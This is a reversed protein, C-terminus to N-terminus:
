ASLGLHPPPPLLQRLCACSSSKSFAACPSLSTAVAPPLTPSSPLPPLSRPFPTVAGAMLAAKAGSSAHPRSTAMTPSACLPLCLATRAMGTARSRAGVGWSRDTAKESWPGGDARLCALLLRHLAASLALCDALLRAGGARARAGMDRQTASGLPAPCDATARSQQLRLVRSPPPPLPRCIAVESCEEKGDITKLCYKSEKTFPDGGVLVGKNLFKGVRFFAAGHRMGCATLM